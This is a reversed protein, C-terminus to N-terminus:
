NSGEWHLSAVREHVRLSRSAVPLRCAQQVSAARSAVPQRECVLRFRGTPLDADPELPVGRLDEWGLQELDDPNLLIVLLRRGCSEAHSDIAACIVELNAAAGASM